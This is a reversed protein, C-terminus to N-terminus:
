RASPLCMSVSVSRSGCSSSLLKAGSLDASAAEVVVDNLTTTLTRIGSQKKADDTVKVDFKVNDTMYCNKKVDYTSGDEATVTEDRICDPKTSDVDLKLQAKEFM